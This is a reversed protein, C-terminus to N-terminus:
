RNKDHKNNLIQPTFTFNRQELDNVFRKGVNNITQYALINQKLSLFEKVLKELPWIEEESITKETIPSIYKKKNEVNSNLFFATQLFELKIM